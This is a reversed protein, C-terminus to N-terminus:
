HAGSLLLSKKWRASKFPQYDSLCPPTVTCASLSRVWPKLFRETHIVTYFTARPVFMIKILQALTTGAWNTGTVTPLFFIHSCFHLINLGPHHSLAREEFSCLGSNSGWFEHKSLGACHHAHHAYAIDASSLCPRSEWAGAGGMLWLFFFFRVKLFPMAQPIVALTKRQSGCTLVCM